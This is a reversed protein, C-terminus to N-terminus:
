QNDKLFHDYFNLLKEFDKNDLELSINKIGGKGDELLSQSYKVGAFNLVNNLHMLTQILKIIDELEIIIQTTEFPTEILFVNKNSVNNQQFYTKLIDNLALKKKKNEIKRIQIIQIM